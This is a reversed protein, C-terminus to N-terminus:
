ICIEPPAVPRMKNCMTKEGAISSDIILQQTTENQHQCKAIRVLTQM